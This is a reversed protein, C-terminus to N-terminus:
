QRLFLFLLLPLSIGLDDKMTSKFSKNSRVIHKKVADRTIGLLAAVEDYSMGQERVLKFVEQTKAPLSEYVKRLQEIYEQLVLEETTTNRMVQAHRIIEAKAEDLRAARKLSDITHNRAITLLYYKFSDITFMQAHHDWIKMFTEQALDEALEPSKVYKRIFSNVMGHYHNYLSTFAEKEGAALRLLVRKENYLPPTYVEHLKSTAVLLLVFNINQINVAPSSPKEPCDCLFAM